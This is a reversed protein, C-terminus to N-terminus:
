MLYLALDSYLSYDLVHYEYLGEDAEAYTLDPLKMHIFNLLELIVHCTLPLFPIMIWNQTGTFGM